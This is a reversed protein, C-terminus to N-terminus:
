VLSSGTMEQPQPLELFTLITPAIDALTGGEKLSHNKWREGVVHLPVDYTTHATDPENTKVNWTREANGHDATIIVSGGVRLAAETIRRTCEDVIEIAKMIAPLNGTHGVMDGNAFNVVILSPCTERALQELVGLCVEEASMEPKQDYTSVDTPSPVLVRSEGEFPEEQYDNFFFTVHPFKETEACRFQQLGSDSIVSGLINQMPEPKEFAVASVPLETEYATMTVYFLNTFPVGRDFGGRPVKSWAEDSLVFAKSLERPRDGRYNFFIVSDGDQICAVPTGNAHVIRTPVIFEDGQMASSTPNKYYAQVASTASQACASTTNTKGTLTEFAQEIRAWRNDRDMAYFRGMVSAVTANTGAIKKEVEEVFGLGTNPSCDRGDTIIHVFIKCDKPAADLLACLHSIDSHVKGDSVLGILHLANGRIGREFASTFADNSKFAGEEIANNLRVLEQPVIRGAGINQHGVESNGMTQDPLGVQLGSTQILTTPWDAHLSDAFPTNAQEIANYADMSADPNQGWGDRIILVAPKKNDAM